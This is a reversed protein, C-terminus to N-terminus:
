IRGQMRARQIMAPLNGEIQKALQRNNEDLIAAITQPAGGVQDFVNENTINLTVQIAANGGDSMSQGAPLVREGRQLIAPIEGPKLGAIGGAHYRPAGAWTAASFTRSHGYGDVGATGGAHLIGPVIAGGFIGGTVPQGLLTNIIAKGSLKAVERGLDIATDRLVSLADKGEYAGDVLRDWVSTATDGLAQMVEANKEVEARHAQLEIVLASIAQGEKSAADVGVSRLTNLREQEDANLGVIAKEFELSAILNDIAKQQREADTETKTKTSSGSGPVTPTTGSLGALGIRLQAMARKKLEALIENERAISENYADTGPTGWQARTEREAKLFAELDETTKQSTSAFLDLFGTLASAADVIAQKLATGVTNAVDSFKKDLKTAKDIMEDSMVLGLEHARDIADKIGQEGQAILQVFKEGGTGGFLEDAVRIQAAKDLKGLKGIIETFLASPDKLKENLEEASYGLRKFSEQASGAGTVIFEDARLQLEKMGDTLADVDIKNQKAVYSLEQFSKADLGARKAAVGVEAVESAMKGVESIFGAIGGAVLGGAFGAILTKGFSGIKTSTLALAQNIRTTSRTMDQEMQRTATRSGSRMRNYSGTATGSAKAMNKEFDRIRAELMVVLREADGEGAM